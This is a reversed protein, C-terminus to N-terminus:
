ATEERKYYTFFIEELTPETLELDLVTHHAAAKVV